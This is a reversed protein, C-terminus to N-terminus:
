DLGLGGDMKKQMMSAVMTQVTPHNAVEGLTLELSETETYREAFQAYQEVGVGWIQLFAFMPTGDNYKGIANLFRVVDPKMNIIMQHLADMVESDEQWRGTM